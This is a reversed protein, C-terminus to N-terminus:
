SRGLAGGVWGCGYPCLTGFCARLRGLTDWMVHHPDAVSGHMQARTALPERVQVFARYKPSREESRRIAEKATAYSDIFKIYVPCNQYQTCGDERTVNASPQCPSGHHARARRVHRLFVGGIEAEPTWKDWVAQLDALFAPV